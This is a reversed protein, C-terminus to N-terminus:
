GPFLLGWVSQPWPLHRWYRRWVGRSKDRWDTYVRRCGEVKVMETCADEYGANKGSQYVSGWEERGQWTLMHTHMGAHGCRGKTQRNTQTAQLTKKTVQATNESIYYSSLAMYLCGLERRRSRPFSQSDGMSVKIIYRSGENRMGEQHRRTWRCSSEQTLPNPPIVCVLIYTDWNSVSLGFVHHNSKFYMKPSPYRYKWVCYSNSPWGPM